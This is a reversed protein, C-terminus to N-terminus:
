LAFNQGGTAGQPHPKYCPVSLQFDDGGKGTPPPATTVFSQHMFEGGIPAFNLLNQTLKVPFTTLDFRECM